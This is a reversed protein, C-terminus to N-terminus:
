RLLILIKRAFKPYHLAVTAGARERSPCKPLVFGKQHLEKSININKQEEGNPQGDLASPARQLFPRDALMLHFSAARMFLSPSSASADDSPM